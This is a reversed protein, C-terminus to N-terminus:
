SLEKNGQSRWMELREPLQDRRATGTVALQQVTISAVLNGILAAEALTGGSALALTAGALSSDGAGTIDLPGDLKVGPVPTPKPDSVLMGRSGRTVMVPANVKERLKIIAESLEDDDVREGPKPLRTTWGAAEFENPKITLNKFYHIHTRSDVTIFLEPYRLARDALVDRMKATIVGCDDMEIQDSVIVADLKPLLADLGDIVRDILGAPTPTRNKTDYREHEGALSPDTMDRPKLYTPTMREPIRLLWDTNCRLAHLDRVLDYAEGDDGVIGLAHLEGADLASLNEMVTGAAGPSHRITIVQHASKGSEVSHEIIRPDTDLYKDLFFDGIVAIRQESFRRVIERLREGTM